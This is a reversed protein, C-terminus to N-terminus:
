EDVCLPLRGDLHDLVSRCRESNGLNGAACIVGLRPLGLLPLFGGPRTRFGVGLRSGGRARRPWGADAMAEVM